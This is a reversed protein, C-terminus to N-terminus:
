KREKRLQEKLDATTAMLALLFEAPTRANRMLVLGARVLETARPGLEINWPAALRAAEGYAEHLKM